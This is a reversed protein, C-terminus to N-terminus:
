DQHNKDWTKKEKKKLKMFLSAVAVAPLAIAEEKGLTEDLLIQEYIGNERLLAIGLTKAGAGTLIITPNLSYRNRYDELIRNFAQSIRTLQARRIQKAIQMIEETTLQNVDACVIRALRAKAHEISAPKGDATEVTFEEERIGDLVLYVDGTTAFLESAIPVKEGNLTVEQVIATVNTRLLGSYVLESSILRELDTKGKAIVKGNFIPIIDTTTSGIDLLLSNPYKQGLYKAAAIWNTAAVELWADAARTAPIFRENIDFILPEKGDKETTFVQLVHRCITAIGEKKTQFCDALEATTVFVVQEWSHGETVIKKILHELYSPYKDQKEWFPFYDSGALLIADENSPGSQILAYKTNAGGIDLGLINAM